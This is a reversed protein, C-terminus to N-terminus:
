PGHVALPCVCSTAVEAALDDILSDPLDAEIKVFREEKIERHVELLGGPSRGRRASLTV